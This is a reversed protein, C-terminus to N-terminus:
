RTLGTCKKIVGAHEIILVCLLNYTHTLLIVELETDKKSYDKRLTVLESNM